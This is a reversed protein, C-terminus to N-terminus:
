TEQVTLRYRTVGHRTEGDPDLMTQSFKYGAETLTARHLIAYIEGLIVKCEKFGAGRSWVHMTVTIEAGLDTDNDWAIQTDNGIVTYPFNSAPMGEPMYPVDDYVGGTINGSLATFIAQQAITEFSM